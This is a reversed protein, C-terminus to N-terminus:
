LRNEISMGHNNPISLTQPPNPQYTQSQSHHYPAAKIPPGNIPNPPPSPALSRDTPHILPIYRITPNFPYIMGSQPQNM